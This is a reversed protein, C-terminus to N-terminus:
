QSHQNADGGGAELLLRSSPSSPPRPPCATADGEGQSQKGPLERPIPPSPSPSSAGGPCVELNWARWTSKRLTLFISQRQQLYGQGKKGLCSFLDTINLGLHILGSQAAGHGQTYDLWRWRCLCKMLNRLPLVSRRPEWGGRAAATRQSTCRLHGTNAGVLVRDQCVRILTIAM